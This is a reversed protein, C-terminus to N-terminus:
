DAWNEYKLDPIRQFDRVNRTVLTADHELVIAAIRLDDSDINLKMRVLSSVRVISSETEPLVRWAAYSAAYIAIRRSAVAKAVASRAKRYENLCGQINEEVTITTIALEAPAHALVRDVVRTQGTVFDSVINTDLIYLAL